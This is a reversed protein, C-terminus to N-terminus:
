EDLGYYLLWTNLGGPLLGTWWGAMCEAWGETCFYLVYVIWGDLGGVLWGNLWGAEM